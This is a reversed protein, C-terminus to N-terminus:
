RKENVILFVCSVVNFDTDPGTKAVFKGTNKDGVSAVLIEESTETLHKNTGNM